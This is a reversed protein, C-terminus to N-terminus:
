ESLKKMLLKVAEDAMRARMYFRSLAKHAYEIARKEIEESAADRVHEKESKSQKLLEELTGVYQYCPEDLKGTFDVSIGCALTVKLENMIRQKLQKYNDEVGIAPRTCRKVRPPKNQNLNM